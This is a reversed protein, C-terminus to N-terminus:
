ETALRFERLAEDYLAKQRFALGLNYHALEGGAAVGPTNPGRDGVLEEYRATSYSDLSLGAEAKAYSPNLEAPRTATRTARDNDGLDGYVFALLHYADALAPDLEIARELPERADASLGRQYQVEGIMFKVRANGQDLSEAQRLARLAAELNGRKLEARALRVHVAPDEPRLDRLQMLEGVASELDGSNYY